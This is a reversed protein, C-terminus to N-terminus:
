QKWEFSKLIADVEDTLDAPSGGDQVFALVAVNSGQKVFVTQETGDVSVWVEAGARKEALKRQKYMDPRNARLLYASNSDLTGDPLRSVAVSIHKTYATDASLKYLEIDVDQAALTQSLYRAPYSFRMTTGELVKNGTISAPQEPINPESISGTNTSNIWFFIAAVTVLFLGALGLVLRQKKSISIM